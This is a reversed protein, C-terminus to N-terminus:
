VHGVRFTLGTLCKVRAKKSIKFYECECECERINFIFIRLRMRMRSHSFDLM